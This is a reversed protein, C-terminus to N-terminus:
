RQWEMDERDTVVLGLEPQDIWAVRWVPRRWLALRQWCYVQRTHSYAYQWVPLKVFPPASVLRLLPTM